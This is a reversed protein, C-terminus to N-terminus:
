IDLEFENWFDKTRSNHGFKVDFRCDLITDAAM